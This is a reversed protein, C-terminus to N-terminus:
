AFATVAPFIAAALIEASRISALPMLAFWIFVPVRSAPIIVTVFRFALLMVAPVNVALRIATSSELLRTAPAAVFMVDVDAVVCVNVDAPPDCKIMAEMYM